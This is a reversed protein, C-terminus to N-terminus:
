SEQPQDYQDLMAMLNGISEEDMDPPLAARFRQSGLRRRLGALAQIAREAVAGIKVQIVLAAASYAIANDDNGAAENLAALSAYGAGIGAQDGLRQDIELSRHYFLEATDYNGRAQALIGLQHYGISMGAQDGLREAIEFARRYLPEAADYDGRDLALIGLQGYNASM